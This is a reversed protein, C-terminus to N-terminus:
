TFSVVEEEATMVTPPGGNSIQRAHALVDRGAQSV